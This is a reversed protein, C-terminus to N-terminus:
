KCEDRCVQCVHLRNKQGQKRVHREFDQLSKLQGTELHMVPRAAKVKALAKLLPMGKWVYYATVLLPSRSHGEKCHVFVRVKNRVFYDLTAVGLELQRRTAATKDQVPLWLFYEAGFPADIHDDQLSIDATIGRKVLEPEFGATCCRNSGIFIGDGIENYDFRAAFTGRAVRHGKQKQTFRRLAATSRAM